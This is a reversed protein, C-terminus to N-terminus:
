NNKEKKFKCLYCILTHVYKIKKLIKIKNKINKKNNNYFLIQTFFYLYLQIFCSYNLTFLYSYIYIALIIVFFCM